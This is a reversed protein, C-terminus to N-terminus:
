VKRIKELGFLQVGVVIGALKAAVANRMPPPLMATPVVQVRLSQQDQAVAAAAVRRVPMDEFLGQLCQSVPQPQLNTHRM